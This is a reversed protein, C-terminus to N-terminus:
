PKVEMLPRPSDFRNRMVGNRRKGSTVAMVRSRERKMADDVRPVESLEYATRETM